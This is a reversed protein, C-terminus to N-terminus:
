RVSYKINKETCIDRLKTYLDISWPCSKMPFATNDKIFSIHMPGEPMSNCLDYIKHWQAGALNLDEFAYLELTIHSNSLSELKTVDSVAIQTGFDNKSIRGSLIVKTGEEFASEDMELVNNWAVGGMSGSADDITFTMFPKNNRGYRKQASTIIGSIQSEFEENANLSEGKDLITAIDECKNLTIVAKYEDLPHETIYFSAFEYEFDLFQGKEYEVDENPIEINKLLKVNEAELTEEALEYITEQGPMAISKDSKVLAIFTDLYDMKSKRSGGFCDLAGVKILAEVAKKNIGQYKIMRELFNQYTTFLGREKRELIINKSIKGVSKIGSLGFIISNADESLTFNVDSQNISPPLIQFGMKSGYNLYFKLKDHSGKYVNLNAKLFITPYYYALWATQIAVVAYAAAHSKNFAYKAFSEMKSWITNAVAENIGNAKCGVIGYPKGTHPDIDNGSGNIFYPKYEDLIEQKKKGMAKRITDSQGPTFGALARVILMVQEQYVIVGYTNKLIPELQKCDYHINKEDLMGNIYNPIEDMPGPRYLSIGAILREFCQDGLEERQKQKAEETLVNSSDIAKVKAPIDQYLQMITSTIGSSELQFVGVTKGTALVNAYVYVDNLPLSTTDYHNISVGYHAKIDNIAEKIVSETRLGLFDMKLLGIEECEGMTFQTTRIYEGTDEDKTFTQPCYNTIDADSIVVGCAHVSTNKKLGEVKISLDIVEKAQPDSNYLDTLEQNELMAKKITMGVDNPILKKIKTGLEIPYDLVRCMDAVAAKAAMTGFTIIRSVCEDGYKQKCYSIVNERLEFEFDVDIDPMSIRDPNLFREFLLEYKIPDLNETIHLCYLVISGAGSGRGPGVYIGHQKAYRIYDWVIFFYGQYGMKFIVSLEFELRAKYEEKKQTPLWKFREEFGDYALKRLYEKDTYGAPIPFKPLKYEGFKFDFVCKEAVELTNILVEPKDNYLQEMEEVTHVYYGKGNFQFRETDTIKKGVQNCLLADHMYADDENLYHADTTAVIKVDFEKALQEIGKNTRDEKVVLEMEDYIKKTYRAKFDKKTMTGDLVQLYAKEVEDYTIPLGLELSLKEIYKSEFESKSYAHRQIELYYDDGFNEKFFAVMKRAEDYKGYALLTPLEGAICASLVVIGEKHALLEEYYVKPRQTYAGGKHSQGFSCLKVLNKYGTENKALLILHYKCDKNVKTLKLKEDASTEDLPLMTFAEWSDTYAEFGIIPHKHQDHMKKYFDVVGYMVGHDTIAGYYAYKKSLDKIRNAGDLISYETHTHLDAFTVIQLADKEFDIKGVFTDKYNFCPAYKAPFSMVKSNNVNLYM